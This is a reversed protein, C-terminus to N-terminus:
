KNVLKLGGLFFFIFFFLSIMFFLRVAFFTYIYKEREGDLNIIKREIGNFRLCSIREYKSHLDIIQHHKNM